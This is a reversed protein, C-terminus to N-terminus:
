RDGVTNSLAIAISEKIRPLPDSDPLEDALARIIDRDTSPSASRVLRAAVYDWEGQPWLRVRHILVALAVLRCILSDSQAWGHQAPWKPGILAWVQGWVWWNHTFVDSNGKSSFVLNPNRCLAFPKSERVLSEVRILLKDSMSEPFSQGMVRLHWARNSASVLALYDLAVAVDSEDPNDKLIAEVQDVCWEVRSPVASIADILATHVWVRPLVAKSARILESPLDHPPHYPLEWRGKIWDAFVVRRASPLQKIVTFVASYAMASLGVAIRHNFSRLVERPDHQAIREFLGPEDGSPDTGEWALARDLLQDLDAAVDDLDPISMPNRINDSVAHDSEGRHSYTNISICSMGRRSCLRLWEQPHLNGEELRNAVEPCVAFWPGLHCPVFVTAPHEPHVECPM